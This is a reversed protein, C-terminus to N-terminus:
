IRAYDPYIFYKREMSEIMSHLNDKEDSDPLNGQLWQITPINSRYLDRVQFEVRVSAYGEVFEYISLKKMLRNDLCYLIKEKMNKVTSNIDDLFSQHMRLIKDKEDKSLVKKFDWPIGSLDAFLKLLLSGWLRGKLIKFAAGSMTSHFLSYDQSVVCFDYQSALALKSFDDLSLDLVNNGIVHLITQYSDYYFNRFLRYHEDTLPDMTRSQIETQSYGSFCMGLLLLTM